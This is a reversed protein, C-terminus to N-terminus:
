GYYNTNLNQLPLTKLSKKLITKLHRKMELTNLLFINDMKLNEYASFLISDAGLRPVWFCNLGKQDQTKVGLLSILFRRAQVQGTKRKSQDQV